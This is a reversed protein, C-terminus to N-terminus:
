NILNLIEDAVQEQNKGDTQIIIDAFSYLGQRKLYLEAVSSDKDACLLLPRGAFDSLSGRSITSQVSTKLWVTTTHKKLL